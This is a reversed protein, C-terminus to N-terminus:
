CPRDGRWGVSTMAAPGGNALGKYMVKRAPGLELALRKALDAGAHFLRDWDADYKGDERDQIDLELTTDISKAWTRFAAVLDDSLHLAAAPDDPFFDGFGDSRLPGYRFEGEVTIDVPHPPTDHEGREWHLRDCGWCVWKTTGHCEDLYRLAWSPGLHAALRRAAALGQEAHECLASRSDFGDPPRSLSWTRLAHALDEPLGLEPDDLPVEGTFADIDGPWGGDYSDYLPSPEGLTRVLLHRPEGRNM